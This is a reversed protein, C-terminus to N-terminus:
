VAVYPIEWYSAYLIALPRLLSDFADEVLCTRNNVGVELQNEGDPHQPQSM